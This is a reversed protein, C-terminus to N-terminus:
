TSALGGYDGPKARRCLLIPENQSEVLNLPEIRSGISASTRPVNPRSIHRLLQAGATPCTHQSQGRASLLRPLMSKEHLRAIAYSLTM